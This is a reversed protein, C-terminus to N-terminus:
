RVLPRTPFLPQGRHGSRALPAISRPSGPDPQAIMVLLIQIPASAIVVVLCDVQPAVRRVVIRSAEREPRSTTMPARIPPGEVAATKRRMARKILRPEEKKM